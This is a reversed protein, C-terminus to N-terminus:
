GLFERFEEPSLEAQFVREEVPDFYYLVGDKEYVPIEWSEKETRLLIRCVCLPELEERTLESPKGDMLEWFLSIDWSSLERTEPEPAPLAEPEAAPAEEPLSAAEEEEPLSAAEAEDPLSLTEAPEEARSDSEAAATEAAAAAGAASVADPLVSRAEEAKQVSNLVDRAEVEPAEAREETLAAKEEALAEPESVAQETGADKSRFASASILNGRTLSVGFYLGIALVACAALSMATRLIIPRRSHRRFETRQIEAIVNDHLDLPVPELESGIQDSLLSFASFLAACDPCTELHRKLEAEEQLSLEGDVMRSILEQYSECSSM